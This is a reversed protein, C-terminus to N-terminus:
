MGEINVNSTFIAIFYFHNLIAITCYLQKNFMENGEPSLESVYCQLYLSTLKISFTTGALKREREPLVESYYTARKCQFYCTVRGKVTNTLSPSGIEQTWCLVCLTLWGDCKPSSWMVVRWHLFPLGPNHVIQRLPVSPM